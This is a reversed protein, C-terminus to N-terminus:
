NRTGEYRNKKSFTADALDFNVEHQLTCKSEYKQCHDIFRYIPSFSTAFVKQM